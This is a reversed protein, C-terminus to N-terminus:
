ALSSDRETWRSKLVAYALGILAGFLLGVFGLMEMNSRRNSSTTGAKNLVLLSTTPGLLSNQYKTKLAEEEVILAQLAAARKEFAPNEAGKGKLGLKLQEVERAARRTKEVSAQYQVILESPKGGPDSVSNTNSNVYSALSESIANTLKVTSDSSSGEGSVVLYGTQPIPTAGARSSVEEPSLGLTRAVPAVVPDSDVMRSYGVAAASEAISVDALALSESTGIQVSLDVSATYVPTKLYGLLGGVVLFVVAPAIVIWPRARLIRAVRGAGDERGMRLEHGYGGDDLVPPRDDILETGRAM